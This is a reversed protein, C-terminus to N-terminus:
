LAAMVVHESGLVRCRGIFPSVRKSHDLWCRDPLLYILFASQKTKDDGTEIDQLMDSQELSKKCFHYTVVVCHTQGVLNSTSRIRDLFWEVAFLLSISGAPINMSTLVMVIAVISASPISPLAMSCIDALIGILIIDGANLDMGVVNGIFISTAAIFMASGNASLAVSFPAVFRSVRRDVNQHDECASLIEPFAMASSTTALVIMWAKGIQVAFRYPNRRTLVFCLTPMIILQHLLVGVVMLGVLIGLAQFNQALDRVSATTFAILSLVGVPTFWLLWKLIIMIVGTLSNFFDLVPKGKEEAKNIAIGLLLCTMIIGLINTGSTKGISKNVKRFTEEDTGNTTNRLYTENTVDNRTLTQQFAMDVINDPMINRLLDAFIDSTEIGASSITETVESNVGDGPKMILVLAIAVVCSLSNTFVIFIISVLSIRGNSKADLSATATIVSSVILPIVMLKLM